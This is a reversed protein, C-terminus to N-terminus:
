DEDNEEESFSLPGISSETDHTSYEENSSRAELESDGKRGKTTRNDSSKLRKQHQYSEQVIEARGMTSNTRETSASSTPMSLIRIAVRALQRYNISGVGKWWTLPELSEVTKWIVEKDLMSEKSRYKTLSTLVVAPDINTMTKSLTDIFEIGNLLEEPNKLIMKEEDPTIPSLSVSDTLSQKIQKFAYVVKHIFPEDSELLHIWIVIPLILGALKWTQVLFVENDLINAKNEALKQLTSKSKIFDDLVKLHSGWRRKHICFAAKTENAANDTIIVLFKDPGYKELVHIMLDCLYEATHRNTESIVSKIFYPKPTLITYNLIYKNRINSWADVALALNEVQSISVEIEESVRTFEKDLLSDSLIERSPVNWSVRARKFFELWAPHEALALPVESTYIARAFLTDLHDSMNDSSNFPSKLKEISFSNSNEPIKEQNEFINNDKEDNSSLVGEDQLVVRRKGKKVQKKIIHPVKGYNILHKEM